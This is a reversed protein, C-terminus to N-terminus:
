EAFDDEGDFLMGLGRMIDELDEKPNLAEEFSFGSDSRDAYDGDLAMVTEKKPRTKRPTKPKKEQALYNKIREVPNFEENFLPNDLDESDLEVKEAKDTTQVTIYGIRQSEIRSKESEYADTLLEAVEDTSAGSTVGGAKNLISQMSANFKEASRLENDLPYKELIKGYHAMWKEHFAKLQAIEQNYKLLSLREIEEAKEVANYIARTVLETKERSGEIEKEQNACTEKLEAIRERLSEVTSENQTTLEKIHADVQKTSYGKKEIKFNM